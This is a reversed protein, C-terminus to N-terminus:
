SHGVRGKRREKEQPGRDGLQLSQSGLVKPQPAGQAVVGDTVLSVEPLDNGLICDLPLDASVVVRIWDLIGERELPVIAVPKSTVEGTAIRVKKTKGPVYMVSTVLRDSVITHSAGTDRLGTTPIGNVQIHHFHRSGGEPIVLKGDPGTEWCLALLVEDDSSDEEIAVSSLGTSVVKKPCAADGRFHGTQQCDFCARSDLLKKLGPDGQRQKDSHSHSKSEEKKPNQPVSPTETTPKGGGEKPKQPGSGGKKSDGGQSKVVVRTRLWEDAAEGLERPNTQKSDVLHQRLREQTCNTLIHERMILNYLGEYTNVKNGIIWGELAKLSTDVFDVWSQTSTKQTDRFKLRYQEPTLGFKKTLCSKMSPYSDADEGSMTLLRDRGSNPVLEWLLSGWYQPKVRRMQLAREFAGLWKDIDDGEVYAPVVGKPLRPCVGGGMSVEPEKDSSGDRKEKYAWKKKELALKEAELAIYALQAELERERISPNEGGSLVGKGGSAKSRGRTVTNVSSREEEDESLSLHRGEGSHNSSADERREGEEPAEESEVEQAEAWATLSTILIQKRLDTTAPLGREICLGRLHVVTLTPLSALDLEM